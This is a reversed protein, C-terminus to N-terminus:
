SKTGNNEEKLVEFTYGMVNFLLGMLADKIGERSKYGRHEMWWDMFHRFASKMYADKPIGKQWNDSTRLNNDSQWQHKMMYKGFEAMVIPSFFGEYDIKNTDQDRVAGSEFKRIKNDDTILPTSFYYKNDYDIFCGDEGDNDKELEQSIEKIGSSNNKWPSFDMLGETEEEEDAKDNKELEQSVENKLNLNNYDFFYGYEEDNTKYCESSNPLHCM